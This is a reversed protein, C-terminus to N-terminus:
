DMRFGSVAKFPGAAFDECAHIGMSAEDLRECEYDRDRKNADREEREEEDDGSIVEAELTAFVRRNGTPPSHQHTTSNQFKCLLATSICLYKSVISHLLFLHSFLFQFPSMYM